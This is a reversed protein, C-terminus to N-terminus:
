TQLKAFNTTVVGGKECERKLLKVLDIVAGGKEWGRKLLKAHDTVASLSLIERQRREHLILLLM